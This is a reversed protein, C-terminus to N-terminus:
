LRHDGAPEATNVDEVRRRGLRPNAAELRLHGARVDIHPHQVDVAVAPRGQHRGVPCDLQSTAIALKCGRWGHAKGRPVPLHRARAPPSKLPSLRGSMTRSEYPICPWVDARM